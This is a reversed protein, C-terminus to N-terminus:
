RDAERYTADDGRSSTTVLAFAAFNKLPAHFLAEREAAAKFLNCSSTPAASISFQLSRVAHGESVHNETTFSRGLSVAPGPEKM